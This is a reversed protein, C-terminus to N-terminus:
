DVEFVIKLAVKSDIAQHDKEAPQFQWKQATELAIADLEANGSSRILRPTVNGQATVYFVLTVAANLDKTQLYSPISPSPAYVAVPGHTGAPKAGAQTENEEEKPEESASPPVPASQAKTSVKREATKVPPTIKKEQQLKAQPEPMEILQTELFEMPDSRLSPASGRWANWRSWGFFSAGEMILALVACFALLKRESAFHPLPPQFRSEM